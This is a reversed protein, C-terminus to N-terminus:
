GIKQYQKRKREIQNKKLLRDGMEVLQGTSSKERFGTNGMCFVYTGAANRQKAKAEQFKLSLSNRFTLNERAIPNVM